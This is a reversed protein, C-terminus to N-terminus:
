QFALAALPNVLDHVLRIPLSWPEDSNLRQNKDTVPDIHVGRTMCAPNELTETEATTYLGNSIHFVREIAAVAEAMTCRQLPIKEHHGDNRHFYVTLPRDNAM